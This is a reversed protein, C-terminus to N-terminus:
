EFYLGARVKYVQSVVLSIFGKFRVSVHQSVKQITRFFRKNESSGSYKPCIAAALNQLRCYDQKLFTPRLAAYSKRCNNCFGLVLGSAGFGEQSLLM